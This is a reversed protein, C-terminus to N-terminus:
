GEVPAVAYGHLDAHVFPSKRVLVKGTTEVGMGHLVPKASDRGLVTPDEQIPSVAQERSHPHGM